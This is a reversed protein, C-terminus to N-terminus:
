VCTMLMSKYRKRLCVAKGICKKVMGCPMIYNKEDDWEVVVDNKDYENTWLYPLMAIKKNTNLFRIVEDKGDDVVNERIYQCLKNVRREDVRRRNWTKFKNLM